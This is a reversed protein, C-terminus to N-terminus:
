PAGATRRARADDRVAQLDIVEAVEFRTPVSGAVPQLRLVPPFYGARGHIEALLVATIPAFSPPNILLPLAQWEAPSLGVGDVLTRVQAAFPGAHDFHSAVVLVREIARGAREAIAALQPETLPHAFNIIFM